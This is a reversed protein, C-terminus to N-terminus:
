AAPSPRAAPVLSFLASALVYSAAPHRRLDCSRAPSRRCATQCTTPASIRRSPEAHPRQDLERHHHRDAGAAGHHRLV